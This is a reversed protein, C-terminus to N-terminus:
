WREDEGFSELDCAGGSRGTATHVRGTDRYIWRRCQEHYPCDDDHCRCIDAPPQRTM